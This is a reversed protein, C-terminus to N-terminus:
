TLPGAPLRTGNRESLADPKNQSRPPNWMSGHCGTSRARIVCACPSWARGPCRGGVETGRGGLPEEAPPEAGVRPDLADRVAGDELDAVNADAKVGGSVDETRRLNAEFRGIAYPDDGAVVLAGRIRRTRRELRDRAVREDSFRSEAQRDIAPVVGVDDDVVNGRQHFVFASFM